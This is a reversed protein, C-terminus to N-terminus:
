VYVLCSQGYQLFPCFISARTFPCPYESNNYISIQKLLPRFIFFFIIADTGTTAAYPISVLLKCEM